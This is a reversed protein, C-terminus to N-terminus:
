KNIKLDSMIISIINYDELELKEQWSITMIKSYDSSTFYITLGNEDIIGAGLNPHNIIRSTEVRGANPFQSAYWSFVDAQWINEQIYIGIQYDLIDASPWAITWLEIAGNNRDVDVEAQSPYFFELKEDQYYKILFNDALEGEGLPNYGNKIEELDIYSDEDTDVKNLNTGIFDETADNLGDNDSDLNAKKIKEIRELWIPDILEEEEEEPEEEIIPEIVEEEEEEPIILEPDVLEPWSEEENEDLIENEVLTLNDDNIEVENNKLFASYAFYAGVSILILLVAIIIIKLIKKKKGSEFYDPEEQTIDTEEQPINQPPNAPSKVEESKEVNNQIAEDKETDAFIDEVDGKKKNLDDFM